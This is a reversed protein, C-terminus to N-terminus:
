CNLCKKASPYAKLRELSIDANCNECKGYTGDAMRELAEDIERLQKELTTELALNDTYEEVESANEDEDTGIQDFTTEYDKADKTPKAIRKLDEDIMTREKLLKEKLEELTKKDIAM